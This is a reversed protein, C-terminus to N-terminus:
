RDPTRKQPAAAPAQQVARLRAVHRNHDGLSAAFVHGGAGDAVFYLDNSDAPHLVAQLSARGPNSIPTPPLGDNLYSNYPSALALDAHALPRGLVGEGQSLAYIVTPDSQLRMHRRLRNLFVAAVHPREEAVATEREVVSALILAAAKDPLIGGEARGAWLEDLLASMGRQMRNILDAASDGYRYFYTAPLLSGEAPLPTAEPALGPAQQLLTVTQRVTLGEAVTLRHVVVQGHRMMDLLLGVSARAPFAYEGAQLTQRGSLKVLLPWWAPHALLGAEKLRHGIEQTGIGRDLVVTQAPAPGPATLAADLGLRAAVVAVSLLALLAATRLVWAM